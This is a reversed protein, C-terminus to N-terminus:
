VQRLTFSIRFRLAGRVSVRDYGTLKPIMSKSGGLLDGSCAVPLTPTQLVALLNTAETSTLLRTRIAWSDKEDGVVLVRLSRDQMRQEDRFPEPTYSAGDIAVPVDAYAGVTLMTM